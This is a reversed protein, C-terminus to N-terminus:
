RVWEHYFTGIVGLAKASDRGTNYSDLSQATKKAIKTAIQGIQGRRGCKKLNVSPLM